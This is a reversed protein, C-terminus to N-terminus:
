LLKPKIRNDGNTLLDIREYGCSDSFHDIISKAQEYSMDNHFNNEFIILPKINKEKIFDTMSNIINLDRNETDIKIFSIEEPPITCYNRLFNDMSICLTDGDNKGLKSLGLNITNQSLEGDWTDSVSENFSFNGNQDAVAFNFLTVKKDENFKTQLYKFLNKSPEVMDCKNIEYEKSLIDYFKGVNCGIDIFSIKKINRENLFERIWNIETGIHISVVENDWFEIHKSM